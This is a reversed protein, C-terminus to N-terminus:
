CILMVSSTSPTWNNDNAGVHLQQRLKSTLMNVTFKKLHSVLETGWYQDKKQNVKIHGDLKFVAYCPFDKKETKNWANSESLHRSIETCQTWDTWFNFTKSWCAFITIIKNGDQFFNGENGYYLILVLQVIGEFLKLKDTLGFQDEPRIRNSLVTRARAAPPQTTASPVEKSWWWAALRAFIIAGEGREGREGQRVHDCTGFLNM